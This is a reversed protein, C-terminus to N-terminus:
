QGWIARLTRTVSPAVTRVHRQSSNVRGRSLNPAGVFASSFGLRTSVLVGSTRSVCGLFRAAGVWRVFVIPLCSGRCANPARHAFAPLRQSRLAYPNGVDKADFVSALVGPLVHRGDVAFTFSLPVTLLSREIGLLKAGFRTVLSQSRRRDGRTRGLIQKACGIAREAARKILESSGDAWRAVYAFTYNGTDLGIADCV